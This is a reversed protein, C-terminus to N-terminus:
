EGCDSSDGRLKELAHALAPLVPALNETAARVSGPLNLVLTGGIIGAAARSLIARPTHELSAAMMAQTFGPLSMDLLSETIQPTIDRPGLGTGGTTCVLDFMNDLALSALLSRLMWPEDPALYAACYGIPLANRILRMIAPGSADRRQGAYGKDSLTIVALSYGNRGCQVHLRCAEMDRLALLLPCHRYTQGNETALFPLWLNGTVRFCEQAEDNALITGAPLPGPLFTESSHSRQPWERDAHLLPLAEGRSCTAVNITIQMSQDM